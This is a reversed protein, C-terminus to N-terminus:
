VLMLSTGPTMGQGMLGISRISSISRIVGITAITVIIWVVAAITGRAAITAISRITAVVWVAAIIWIIIALIWVAAIIWIASIIMCIVVVIWVVWIAVIIWVAAWVAVVIWVVWVVVIIWIVWIAVVVRVGSGFLVVVYVDDVFDHVIKVHVLIAFDFPILKLWPDFALEFFILFLEIIHLLFTHIVDTLLVFVAHSLEFFHPIHHVIVPLHDGLALAVDGPVVELLVPVHKLSAM